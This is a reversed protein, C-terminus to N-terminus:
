KRKNKQPPSIQTRNVWKVCYIILSYKFRAFIHTFIKKNFSITKKKNKKRIVVCPFFVSLLHFSHLSFFVQKKKIFFFYNKRSHALQSMSLKFPPIFPITHLTWHRDTDLANHDTHSTSTKPQLRWSRPYGRDSTFFYKKWEQIELFISFKGFRQM